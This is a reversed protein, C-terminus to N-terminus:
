LVKIVISVFMFLGLMSMLLARPSGPAQVRRADGAGATRVQLLRRRDTMVSLGHQGARRLVM